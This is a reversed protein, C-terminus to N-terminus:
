RRPREDANDPGKRLVESYNTSAEWLVDEDDDNSDNKPAHCRVVNM